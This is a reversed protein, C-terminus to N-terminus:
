LIGTRNESKDEARHNINLGRISLKAHPKISTYAARQFLCVVLNSNEPSQIDSHFSVQYHPLQWNQFVSHCFNNINQYFDLTLEGGARREM